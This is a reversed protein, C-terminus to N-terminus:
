PSARWAASSGTTVTCVSGVWCSLPARPVMAMAGLLLRQLPARPIVALHLTPIDCRAHRRPSHLHVPHRHVLLALLSVAHSGVAISTMEDQGAGGAATPDSGVLLIAKMSALERDYGYMNMLEHLCVDAGCLACARTHKACLCWAPGASAVQLNRGAVTAGDDLTGDEINSVCRPGCCVSALRTTSRTSAVLSAAAANQITRLADM